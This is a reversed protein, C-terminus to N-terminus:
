SLQQIYAQIAKPYLTHEAKQVRQQLSEPTDYPRVPVVATDLINGQDYNATVLHVTTGSTTEGAELVARHVHLGFMGKGGFQPFRSLLAPHINLIRKPWVDLLTQGIHKMYGACVILEVGYQQFIAKITADPNFHTRTSIHLAPINHDRARQLAFAQSNNSVVAGVAAHLSGAQIADLIAQLGSGGHSCLVGLQRRCSDTQSTEQFM